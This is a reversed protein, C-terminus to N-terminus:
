MRRPVYCIPSLVDFIVHIQFCPSFSFCVCLFLFCPCFLFFSFNSFM